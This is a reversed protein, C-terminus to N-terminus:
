SVNGAAKLAEVSLIKAASIAQPPPVADGNAGFALTPVFAPQRAVYLFAQLAFEADAARSHSSLTVNLDPVQNVGTFNPPAFTCSSILKIWHLLRFKPIHCQWTLSPSFNHYIIISNIVHFRRRLLKKILPLGIGNQASTESDILLLSASKQLRYILFAQLDFQSVEM